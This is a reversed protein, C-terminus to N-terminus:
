MSIVSLMVRSMSIVSLMGRVIYIDNVVEGGSRTCINSSM